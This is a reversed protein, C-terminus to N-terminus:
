RHQVDSRLMRSKRKSVNQQCNNLLYSETKRFTNQINDNPTYKKINPSKSSECSSETGSHAVHTCSAHLGVFAQNRKRDLVGAKDLCLRNDRRTQSFQTRHGSLILGCCGAEVDDGPSANPAKVPLPILKSRWEVRPSTRRPFDFDEGHPLSFSLPHHKCKSLRTNWCQHHQIDLTCSRQVTDHAQGHSLAVSPSLPKGSGVRSRHHM